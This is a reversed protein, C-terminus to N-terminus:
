HSPEKSIHFALQQPSPDWDWCVELNCCDGVSGFWPVTKDTMKNCVNLSNQDKVTMIMQSLKSKM